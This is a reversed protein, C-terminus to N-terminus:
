SKAALRPPQLRGLSRRARELLKPDKYLQFMQNAGIAFSLLEFVMQEVDTDAPLQGDAVARRIAQAIVAGREDSLQLLRDRVPGARDDFEAAAATFFCGGKDLQRQLYDLYRELYIRLQATGPAAALVPDLVASRFVEYAADVTAVQLAEKSGFHGFLGAKSMGVEAALRGITLAELGESNAIRRAAALIEQRTREGQALRRDSPAASKSALRTGPKKM